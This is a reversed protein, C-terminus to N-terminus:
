MIVDAAFAFSLQQQHLPELDHMLKSKDTCMLMPGDPAFLTLPFIGVIINQDIDRNSRTLAM